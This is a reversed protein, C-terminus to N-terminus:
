SVGVGGYTHMYTRQVTVGSRWSPLCDGLLGGGGDGACLRHLFVDLGYGGRGVLQSLFELDM